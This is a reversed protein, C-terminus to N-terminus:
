AREQAQVGHFFAVLGHGGHTIESGPASTSQDHGADRAGGLFAFCSREIRSHDLQDVRKRPEESAFIIGAVSRRRLRCKNLPLGDM